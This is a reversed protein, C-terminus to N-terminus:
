KRQSDNTNADLCRRNPACQSAYNLQSLLSALMAVKYYEQHYERDNAMILAVAEKVNAPYHRLMTGSLGVMVIPPLM